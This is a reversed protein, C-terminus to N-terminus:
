QADMAKVELTSGDIAWKKGAPPRPISDLRTSALENFSSPLRGKQQVFIRLQQTLFPNVEGNISDHVANDARAAVGPVLPANAPAVASSSGDGPAIAATDGASHTAPAVIQNKHCGAALLVAFVCILRGVSPPMVLKITKHFRMFFPNLLRGAALQESQYCLDM